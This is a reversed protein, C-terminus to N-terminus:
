AFPEMPDSGALEEIFGLTEFTETMHAPLPANLRLPRGTKRPVSLARAHLHLGGAVGGPVERRTPYKDDGLISAGIESLHFRLQHMRGTEPKLAVWAARQAAQSVVAYDTIAHRAGEEGQRAARMKERDDGPGTGKAMWGRLQGAPPNPVGVTVAWYIKVMDRSRFLEGLRAAAAPHRALLLIGSTERDLRHVLKPRHGGEALAELMGDIHRGQGTGGQVAIGPPKNLAIMDEDAHIVLSNIFAADRSSVSTERMEGTRWQDASAPPLRVEQGAELRTNAKARAGDVRVQGTRLLKQVEGQTLTMRRKIWRDLRAGAEQRSVTEIVVGSM